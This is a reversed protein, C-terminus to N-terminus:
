PTDGVYRRYAARWDGTFIAVATSVRMTGACVRRYVLFELRDKENPIPGAEPWLNAVTSHGTLFVPVRHDIEGHFSSGLGYRAIISRRLASSVPERPHLSATCADHQMVGARYSGPTCADDPAIMAGSGIVRCSAASAPVAMVAAALFTSLALKFTM